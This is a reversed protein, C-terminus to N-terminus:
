TGSLSFRTTVAVNTTVFREIVRLDHLLEDDETATVAIRNM